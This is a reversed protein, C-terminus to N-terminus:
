RSVCEAQDANNPSANHGPRGPCRSQSSARADPWPMAWVGPASPCARVRAGTSRCRTSEYGGWHPAAAPPALAEPAAAAAKTPLREHNRKQERIVVGQQAFPQFAQKMLGAVDQHLALRSVALFHQGKQVS